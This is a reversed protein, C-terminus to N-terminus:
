KRTVLGPSSRKEPTYRLLNLREITGLSQSYGLRLLAGPSTNRQGFVSASGAASNDHIKLFTNPACLGFLFITDTRVRTL